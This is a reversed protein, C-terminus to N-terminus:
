PYLPDIWLFSYHGGRGQPITAISFRAKPDGEFLTALLKSYLSWLQEGARDLITIRPIVNFQMQHLPDLEPVKLFPTDSM